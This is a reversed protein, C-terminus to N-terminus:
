EEQEDDLDVWRSVANYIEDGNIEHNYFLEDLIDDKAQEIRNWAPHEDYYVAVNEWLADHLMKQYLLSAENMTLNIETGDDREITWGKNRDRYIKM